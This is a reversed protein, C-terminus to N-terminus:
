ARGLEASIRRVLHISFGISEDCRPPIQYETSTWGELVNLCNVIRKLLTQEGIAITPQQSGDASSLVPLPPYALTRMWVM